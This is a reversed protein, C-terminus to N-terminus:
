FVATAQEQIIQLIIEAFQFYVFRTIHTSEYKKIYARYSGGTVVRVAKKMSKCM